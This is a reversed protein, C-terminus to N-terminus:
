RALLETYLNRTKEAVSQWSFESVVRARGAEGMAHARAGEAALENV